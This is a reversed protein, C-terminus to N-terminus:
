PSVVRRPVVRLTGEAAAVVAGTGALRYEWVGSQDIEVAAYFQGVAEKTLTGDAGPSPWGYELQTADPREVVLTVTTPDTATGALDSFPASDPDQSPNGFRVLDGIDTM